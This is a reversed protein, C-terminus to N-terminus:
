SVPNITFYTKIVKTHNQNNKDKVIFEIPITYRDPKGNSEPYEIIYRIKKYGEPEINIENDQTLVHIPYKSKIEIETTIPDFSLNGIHLEYGNRWGTGPIYVNTIAKDRIVTTYIPVRVYLLYSFIITLVILITGYIVTRPRLYQIKSEPNEIQEMTKYAILTEKKFKSMVNTCADVCLGCHLCGIQLGDRIDIGTPCVLVCLKCDICDGKHQGVKENNQKRPEGRKVDYTVIPSFRDLLAVQFRGYPCVLKCLNERFYVM